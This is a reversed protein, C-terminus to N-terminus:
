FFGGEKSDDKEIKGAENEKQSSILVYDSKEKEQEQYSIAPQAPVIEGMNIGAPMIPPNLSTILNAPPPQAGILQKEKNFNQSVVNKSVLESSGVNVIKGSAGFHKAFFEAESMGPDKYVKQDNIIYHAGEPQSPIRPMAQQANPALNFKRYGSYPIGTTPMMGTPPMMSPFMESSPIKSSSIGSSPAGQSYQIPFSTSQQNQYSPLFQGGM